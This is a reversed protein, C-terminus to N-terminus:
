NTAKTISNEGSDLAHNWPTFPPWPWFNARLPQGCPCSWPLLPRRRGPPLLLVRLRWAGGRNEPLYSAGHGHGTLGQHLLPEQVPQGGGARPHGARQGGRLHECQGPMARGCELSVLGGDRREADALADLANACLNMLARKLAPHDLMAGACAPNEKLEVRVGLEQARASILSRVDALLHNLDFPRLEGLRYDAFYLLDEAMQSVRAVSAAVMRWGQRILQPDDSELGQEVIYSAANLGHLLNKIYPALGSLTAGVAAMAASKNLQEELASKDTIDLFNGM